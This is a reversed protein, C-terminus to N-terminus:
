PVRWRRPRRRRNSRRARAAPPRSRRAARRSWAERAPRATRCRCTTSAQAGAQQGSECTAHEGATFGPPLDDQAGTLMRKGLKLAREVADAPVLPQQQRHVLELLQEGGGAVVLLSDAVHVCEHAGRVAGVTSDHDDQRNARVVVASARGMRAKRAQETLAVHEDARHPPALKRLRDRLRRALHPHHDLPLEDRLEDVVDGPLGTPKWKERGDRRSSQCRRSPRRIRRAAYSRVPPTSPATARSASSAYPRNLSSSCRVARRM